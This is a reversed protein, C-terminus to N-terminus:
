AIRLGQGQLFAHPASLGPSQRDQAPTFLGCCTLSIALILSRLPPQWSSGVGSQSSEHAITRMRSASRVRWAAEPVLLSGTPLTCFWSGLLEIVGLALLLPHPSPPSQFVLSPRSSDTYALLPNIGSLFSCGDEARATPGM